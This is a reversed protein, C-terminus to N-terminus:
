SKDILNAAKHYIIVSTIAISIVIGSLLLWPSTDFRRDLLRGLLAFLVLPIAILFGLEM